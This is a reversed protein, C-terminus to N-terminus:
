INIRRLNNRTKDKKTIVTLKYFTFMLKLGYSIYGEYKISINRRHFGTLLCWLCLDTFSMSIDFLANAGCTAKEPSQQAEEASFSLCRGVSTNPPSFYLIYKAFSNYMDHPVPKPITYLVTQLKRRKWFFHSCYQGSASLLSYAPILTSNISTSCKEFKEILVNWNDFTSSPKKEIKRQLSEKLKCICKYEINESVTSLWMRSYMTSQEKHQNCLKRLIKYLHCLISRQKNDKM